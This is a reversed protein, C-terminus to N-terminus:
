RLQLRLPRALPLVERPNFRSLDRHFQLIGKRWKSTGFVENNYRFHFTKEGISLFEESGDNNDDTAATNSNTDIAAFEPHPHHYNNKCHNKLWPIFDADLRFNYDSSIRYM